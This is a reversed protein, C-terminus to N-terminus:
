LSSGRSIRRSMPRLNCLDTLMWTGTTLYFFPAHSDVLCLCCFYVASLHFFAHAGRNGYNGAFSASQYCSLMICVTALLPYCYTQVQPENSFVRYQCILHLMLFICVCIHFLLNPQQGRFRCYSLFLLCLAALVALVGAVLSLLDKPRSLYNVATVAIGIAAAGAGICSTLSAPFNRRYSTGEKLSFVGAGTLVLVTVSLIVLLIGSIHGRLLLGGEDTGAISQWLKLLLGFIGAALVILPLLETKLYKKM